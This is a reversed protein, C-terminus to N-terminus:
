NQYKQTLTQQNETKNVEIETVLRDKIKFKELNTKIVFKWEIRAINDLLIM